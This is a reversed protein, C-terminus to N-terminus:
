HSSGSIKALTSENPENTIVLIVNFVFFSYLLHSMLSVSQYCQSVIIIIINLVCIINHPTHMHGM